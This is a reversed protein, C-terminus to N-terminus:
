ALVRKRLALVGLVIAALATGALVALDRGLQESSHYFIAMDLAHVGYFTPIFRSIAQVWGPLFAAVGIGGSLFFLYFSLNIAVATVQLMRPLLAGLAVGLGASALCLLAIMGFATVWYIGVPRLYGIAAGIMVVTGAVLLTTVWGALLKGVILTTRSVPALLLEKLTRQEVERALALGSNVVGAITILLVLTPVLEYQLLGVDAARLDTEQVRVEIPDAPQEVYFRTIAAPLSRRLDNTFDLNLNNITIMVPDPSHAAIAADFDSPITIVAAVQVDKLERAAESATTEHVIFADSNEIIHALQQARPGTGQVVLAVPNRGVAQAELALVLLMALAPLITAAIDAPQRSWVALDKRVVAWISRWALM